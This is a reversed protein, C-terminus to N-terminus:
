GGSPLRSGPTSGQRTGLALCYLNYKGKKGGRRTEIRSVIRRRRGIVLLEAAGAASRRGCLHGRSVVGVIVATSGSLSPCSYSSSSEVAWGDVKDTTGWLGGPLHRRRRSLIHGILTDTNPRSIQGSGSPM